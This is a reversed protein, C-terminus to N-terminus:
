IKKKEWIELYNNVTKIAELKYLRITNQALDLSERMQKLLHAPLNKGEKRHVLYTLYIAKHKPGLSNLAKDMIEMREELVKRREPTFDRMIEPYDYIITEDGKYPNPDSAERYMNALEHNAITYLYLRVGDDVTRGSKQKSQDYHPKQWFKNFTRNALEGPDYLLRSLPLYENKTEYETKAQGISGNNWKHCIVECKKILDGMFRFTFAHFAAASAEFYEPQNKWKIYQILNETPENEFEKWDM